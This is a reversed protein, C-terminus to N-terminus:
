TTPSVKQRKKGDSGGIESIIANTFNTVSELYYEDIVDLFQDYTYTFEKNISKAGAKATCYFFQIMKETSNLSIISGGSITEYEIMARNTIKIPWELSGVKVIKTGLLKM